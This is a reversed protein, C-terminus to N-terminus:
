VLRLVFKSCRLSLSIYFQSRFVKLLFVCTSADCAWLYIFSSISVSEAFICMYVVPHARAIFLVCEAGKGCRAEFIKPHNLGVLRERAQIM